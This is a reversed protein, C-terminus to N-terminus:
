AGRGKARAAAYEGPEWVTEEIVTYDDQYAATAEDADRFVDVVDGAENQVIYIEPQRQARDAEIADRITEFISMPEDTARTKLYRTLYNAAIEQPTKM